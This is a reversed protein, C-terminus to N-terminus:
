NAIYNTKKLELRYMIVSGIMHVVMGFGFMMVIFNMNM